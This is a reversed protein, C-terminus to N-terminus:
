ASLLRDAGVFAKIMLKIFPTARAALFQGQFLEPEFDLRAWAFEQTRVADYFM